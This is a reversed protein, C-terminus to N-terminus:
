HARRLDQELQLQQATLIRLRLELEIRRHSFRPLAQIRGRLNERQAELRDIAAREHWVLLPPLSRDVARAM